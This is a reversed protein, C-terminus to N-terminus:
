NKKKFMFFPCNFSFFVRDQLPHLGSESTVAVQNELFSRGLKKRETGAGEEWRWIRCVWRQRKTKWSVSYPHCFLTFVDFPDPSATFNISHQPGVSYDPATSGLIFWSPISHPRANTGSFVWAVGPEEAKAGKWSSPYIYLRPRGIQTIPVLHSLSYRVALWHQCRFKGRLWSWPQLSPGYFGQM